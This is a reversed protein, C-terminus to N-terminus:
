SQDGALANVAAAAMASGGRRGLLTVYPIAGAAALAAKSEAAGVFGVPFALVLAPSPAGERLLDLLRFLATPANGIAVVAGALRERWRDVAAASRTTGHHRAAEAVGDDDLTCVVANDAPLRRRIIGAAVMASDVLIPAGAALARRGTQAADATFALDAVIDPMGCAHVLRVALPRLDEPVATLDTEEVILAFSRRYIAQPDREYDVAAPIARGAGDAVRDIGLIWGEEREVIRRDDASLQPPGAFLPALEGTADLAAFHRALSRVQAADKVEGPQPTVTLMSPYIEALIVRWGGAPPPTLAVLGTEFPWVRVADALWPHHRLAHAHAVGLLTQSGVSGAGALKWTSQPGPRQRETIRFEDLSGEGYGAPRTPSLCDEAVASASGWFPFATGSIRENLRAAIVFRNNANDDGDRIRAALEKWVTTWTPADPRLRGAFGAPYGFAFDFGVLTTRDRAILDSLLDVLAAVAQRRTAPNALRETTPGTDDREVTALWVSDRGTRPVARASWDVMVYADFLRTV